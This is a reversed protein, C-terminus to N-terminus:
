GIIEIGPAIIEKNKTKTNFELRETLKKTAEKAQKPHMGLVVGLSELDKAARMHFPEQAFSAIIMDVKYKRCLKINQSIRGMIRTRLIDKSKLIMSFPIAIMIRNKNALKCLVQNLGSNRHHMSDPRPYLELGFLIDAKTKELVYRDNKSSKVLVLDTQKKAKTVQKPKALLGIFVELNTKKQLQKKKKEYDQKAKFEYVFCIGNYDLKKAIDLFRKENRNPFVIDIYMFFM